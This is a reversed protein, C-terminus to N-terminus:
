RQAHAVGVLRSPCSPPVRYAFAAAFRHEGLDILCWSSSPAHPFQIVSSRVGHLMPEPVEFGSPNLSFGSGLAKILAEKMSWLRFFLHVKQSGAAFALLRRETPGYVMSGIGDLDRRPTREEVDVGLWDHAAVAILGHPGSHSANFGVPARRGDVRAFPKGHEGYGFSLRRNSCGLREALTVRLAARCLAFQRRPAVALFRRWRTKEEDDLLAFACTERSADPALDVHFITAGEAERWPSWWQSETTTM